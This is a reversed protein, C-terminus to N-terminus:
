SGVFVYRGLLKIDRSTVDSFVPADAVMEENIGTLHQVFKSIRSQPNILARQLYRFSRKRDTIVIGSRYNFRSCMNVEQPKSIKM